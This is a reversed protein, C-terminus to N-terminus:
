PKSSRNHGVHRPRPPMAGEGKNTTQTDPMLSGRVAGRLSPALMPRGQLTVLGTPGCAYRREVEARMVGGIIRLGAKTQPARKRLVLHSLKLTDKHLQAQEELARLRAPRQSWELMGHCWDGSSALLPCTAAGVCPAVIDVTKALADRISMLARTPMRTAPEIIMVVGDDRVCRLAERVLALRVGIDRRADGIENLVNAMLVVDFSADPLGVVTDQLPGTITEVAASNMPLLRAIDTAGRALAPASADLATVHALSAFACGAGISASLPGAGLDLVRPSARLDVHGEHHLREFLLATRAANLPAFFRAYAELQWRDNLYNKDRTAREDTFGASVERIARVLMMPAPRAVGHLWADVVGALRQRTTTM